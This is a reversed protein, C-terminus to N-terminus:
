GSWFSWIRLGKLVGRLFVLPSTTKASAIWVAALRAGILHPLLWALEALAGRWRRGLNCVLRRNASLMRVVHSPPFLNTHTPSQTPTCLLHARSFQSADLRSYGLTLIWTYTLLYGVTLIWTDIDLHSYVLALIWSYKNKSELRACCTIATQLTFPKCISNVQSDFATTCPGIVRLPWETCRPAGWPGGFSIWAGLRLCLAIIISMVEAVSTLPFRLGCNRM